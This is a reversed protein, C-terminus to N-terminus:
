RTAKPAAGTDVRVFGYFTDADLIRALADETLNIPRIPTAWRETLEYHLDQLPTAENRRALLVRFVIEQIPMETRIFGEQSGWHESIEKILKQPDTLEHDPKKRSPCSQPRREAVMAVASRKLETLREFSVQYVLPAEPQQPTEPDPTTM